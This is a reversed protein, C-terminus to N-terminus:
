RGMTESGAVHADTGGKEKVMSGIMLQMPGSMRVGSGMKLRVLDAVLGDAIEM